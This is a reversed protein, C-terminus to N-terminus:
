SSTLALTMGVDRGTKTRAKVNLRYLNASTGSPVITVSVQATEPEAAIQQECEAALADRVATSGLRKVYDGIGVGYGVLHAFGNKRTVLRRLVRKRYSVLGEDFGVDGTEDYTITGLQLPDTVNPVPDLLGSLAQPNSIDRSTAGTSLDPPPIFKKIGFFPTPTASVLPNGALNFIGTAQANYVAPFPSLPRDVTVDIYMGVETPDIGDVVQPVYTSTPMVPRCPLGDLGTTTPDNVISWKQRPSADMADLLGSYYVVESFKYRIVNEAVARVSVIEFGLAPGITDGFLTGGFITNGYGM